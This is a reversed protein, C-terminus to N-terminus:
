KKLVVIDGRKLIIGRSFPDEETRPTHVWFLHKYQKMFPILDEADTHFLGAGAEHIIVNADYFFQDLEERYQQNFDKNGVLTPDFITDGSYAFVNKKFREDHFYIKTMVTPISHYSIDCFVTINLFDIENKKQLPLSIINYQASASSDLINNLFVEVSKSVVDGTIISIDKNYQLFKIMGQNHDQHIHSIFLAKVKQLDFGKERMIDFAYVNPDFIIYSGKVNLLFSTSAKNPSFGDGSDFCFLSLAGPINRLKREPIVPPSYYLSISYEENDKKVLFSDDDILTITINDLQYTNNEYPSFSIFDDFDLLKGSPDYNEYVNHLEKFYKAKQWGYEDKYLDPGQLSDKTINILRDINEEPAIVYTKRQNNFFFNKFLPFGVECYNIGHNIMTKGLFIYQPFPIDGISKLWEPPSGIVFSRNDDITFVHCLSNIEIHKM